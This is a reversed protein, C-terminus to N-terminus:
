TANIYPFPVADLFGSHYIIDVPLEGHCIEREYVTTVMQFPRHWKESRDNGTLVTSAM